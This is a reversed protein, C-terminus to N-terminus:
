AFRVGIYVPLLCQFAMTPNFDASTPSAGCNTQQFCNLMSSVMECPLGALAAPVGKNWSTRMSTLCAVIAAQQGPPINCAQMIDQITVTGGDSSMPAVTDRLVLADAADRADVPADGAADPTSLADADPGLDARIEPRQGATVDPALDPSAQALDPSAQALDPSAQALDPGLQAADPIGPAGSDQKPGSQRLSQNDCSVTAAGGLLLLLALAPASLAKALRPFSPTQSPDSALVSRIEDLLAQYRDPDLLENDIATTPGAEERSKLDSALQALLLRLGAWFVSCQQRAILTTHLAALTEDVTAWPKVKMGSSEILFSRIRQISTPVLLNQM